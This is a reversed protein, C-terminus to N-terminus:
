EKNKDVKFGVANDIEQFKICKSYVMSIPGLKYPNGECHDKSTLSIFIMLLGM